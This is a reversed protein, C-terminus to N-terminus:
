GDNHTITSSECRDPPDTLGQDSHFHILWFYSHTADTDPGGAAGTNPNTGVYFTSNDTVFTASNTSTTVSKNLDQFEQVAGSAPACATPSGSLNGTFSGYYLTVTITGSAKTGATSNITIRDNPLWGQKSLSSAAGIVTVQEGNAGSTDCGVADAASTNPSDGGYSAAFEYLGVGTSATTTFKVPGYWANDGRVTVCWPTPAGSIATSCQAAGTSTPGFVQWSISSDAPNQSAASANITGGPGLGDTGPRNATGTLSATDDLTSGIVCPNSECTASTTLTPKL